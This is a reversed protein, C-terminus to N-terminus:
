IYNLIKYIDDVLIDCELESAAMKGRYGYDVCIVPIEAKKAANVDTVSDGVMLMSKNSIKLKTACKMLPYPSPKKLVYSDGAIISDFFSILGFNKLIPLTFKKPKNTICAVKIGRVKLEKLLKTVNPFM